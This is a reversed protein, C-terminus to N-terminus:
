ENPRAGAYPHACFAIRAKRASSSLRLEGTPLSHATSQESMTNRSHPWPGRVGRISSPGISSANDNERVDCASESSPVNACPSLPSPPCHFKLEGTHALHEVSMVYPLISPGSTRLVEGFTCPCPGTKLVYYKEKCDELLVYYDEDRSLSWYYEAFEEDLCWENYAQLRRSSAELIAEIDDLKSARRRPGRPPDKDNSSSRARQADHRSPQSAHPM